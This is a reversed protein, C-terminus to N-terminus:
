HIWQGDEANVEVSSLILRGNETMDLDGGQLQSATLIQKIDTERLRPLGTVVDQKARSSNDALSLAIQSVRTHTLSLNALEIGGLGLAMLIPLMYAFEIYALGSTDSPLSGLRSAIRRLPATLRSM